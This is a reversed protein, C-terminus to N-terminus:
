LAVQSIDIKVFNGVQYIRNTIFKLDQEGFRVTVIYSAIFKEQNVTEDIRCESIIKHEIINHQDTLESVSRGKVREVIESGNYKAVTTSGPAIFNSIASGINILLNSTKSNEYVPIKNNSCIENRIVHYNTEFKTKVDTIVGEFSTINNSQHAKNYVSPKIKNTCGTAITFCIFVLLKKLM